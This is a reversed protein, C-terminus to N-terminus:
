LIGYRDVRDMPPGKRESRRLRAAAIGPRCIIPQGCRETLLTEDTRLPAALYLQRDPQTVFLVAQVGSVVSRRKSTVCPSLGLFSEIEVAFERGYKGCGGHAHGRWPSSDIATAMDLELSDDTITSGDAVLARIVADHYVNKAPM